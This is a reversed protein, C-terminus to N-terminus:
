NPKISEDRLNTEMQAIPKIILKHKISRILIWVNSTVLIKPPGLSGFVGLMSGGDWILRRKSKELYM